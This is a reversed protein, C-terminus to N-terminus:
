NCLTVKVKESEASKHYFMKRECPVPSKSDLTLTILHVELSLRRKCLSMDTGGACGLPRWLTSAQVDTQQRGKVPAEGKRRVQNILLCRVKRLAMYRHLRLFVFIFWRWLPFLDESPWVRLGASRFSVTDISVASFSLIDKSLGYLEQTLQLREQPKRSPGAPWNWM